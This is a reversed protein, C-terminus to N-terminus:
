WDEPPVYSSQGVDHNPPPSLGQVSWKKPKAEQATDGKVPSPDKGVNRDYEISSDREEEASLDWADPSTAAVRGTGDGIGSSTIVIQKHNRLGVWSASAHDNAWTQPVIWCHSQKRSAQQFVPDFSSDWPPTGKLRASLFYPVGDTYWINPTDISIGALVQLICYLLIWRGKRADQPDVEGLQDTKEFKLFAELLNNSNFESGLVFVNSAESYAFATKKDLGKAKKSGFFSAKSSYQAPMSPPVLPCPHPIHECHNRSDFGNLLDTMRLDDSDARFMARNTKSVIRAKEKSGVKVETWTVDRDVLYDYLAGFDQQMSRVLDRSLWIGAKAQASRPPWARYTTEYFQRLFQRFRDFSTRAPPPQTSQVPWVDDFNFSVLREGADQIRVELELHSHELLARSVQSVDRLEPLGSLRGYMGACHIFAERWGEHWQVANEESWGLLGAAAAPDNRVDILKNSELYDIIIGVCDMDIPLYVQLRTQLDILAQYFNLGVLSRNLLLALVNRTTLHHRLIEIRSADAPPPLRIEHLVAAESELTSTTSLPPSLQDASENRKKSGGFVRPRHKKFVSGNEDVAGQSQGHRSPSSISQHSHPLKESHGSFSFSRKGAYGERLLSIFFESETEEL